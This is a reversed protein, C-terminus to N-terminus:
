WADDEPVGNNNKCFIAWPQGVFTFPRSALVQLKNETSQTPM